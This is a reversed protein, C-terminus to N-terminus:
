ESIEESTHAKNIRAQIFTDFSNLKRKNAIWKKIEDTTDENHLFDLIADKNECFHLMASYCSKKWEKRLNASDILMEHAYMIMCLYSRQNWCNLRTEKSYQKNHHEDALDDILRAIEKYETKTM